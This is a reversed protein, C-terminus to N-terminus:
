GAPCVPFVPVHFRCGHHQCRLLPSPGIGNEGRTTRPRSGKAWIERAGTTAAPPDSLCDDDIRAKSLMPYLQEGVTPRIKYVIKDYEAPTSSMQVALCYTLVAGPKGRKALADLVFEFQFRNFEKRNHNIISRVIAGREKVTAATEQTLPM